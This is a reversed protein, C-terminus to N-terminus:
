AKPPTPKFWEYVTTIVTLTIAGIIANRVAHSIPNPSPSPSLTRGLAVRADQKAANLSGITVGEGYHIRHANEEYVHWERKAGYSRIGVIYNPGEQTRVLYHHSEKM